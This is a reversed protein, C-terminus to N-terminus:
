PSIYWGCRLGSDVGIAVASETDECTCLYIWLKVGVVGRGVGDRIRWVRADRM